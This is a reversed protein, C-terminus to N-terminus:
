LLNDRIRKLYEDALEIELDEISAELIDVTRRVDIPLDRRNKGARLCKIETEVAVIRNETTSLTALSPVMVTVLAPVRTLGLERALIARHNGGRQIILRGDPLRYVDMGCPFPDNWGEECVRRRLAVMQSDNCIDEYPRSLGVIRQPNVDRVKM